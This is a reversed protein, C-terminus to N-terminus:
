TTDNQYLLKLYKHKPSYWTIIRQKNVHSLSFIDTTGLYRYKVINSSNSSIVAFRPEKHLQSQILIFSGVPYNM